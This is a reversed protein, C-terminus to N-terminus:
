FVSGIFILLKRNSRQLDLRHNEMLDILLDRKSFAALGVAQRELGIGDGVLVDDILNGFGGLSANFGRQEYAANRTQNGVNLTVGFVNLNNGDNTAQQLVAADVSETRAIIALDVKGAGVQHRAVHFLTHFDSPGDVIGLQLFANVLIQVDRKGVGGFQAHQLVVQFVGREFEEATFISVAAGFREIRLSVQNLLCAIIIAM